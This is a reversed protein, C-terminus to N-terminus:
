AARAEKETLASAPFTMVITGQEDTRRIDSIGANKLNELTEAHPFGYTNDAGCSIIATKAGVQQLFDLTSSSRSGHHGLKIVECALPIGGSLLTQEAQAEADGMFLIRHTGATLMSVLSYNNLEEFTATPDPYLFQLTAGTSLTIVDGPSPLVTRVQNDEIASLLKGYTATTLTCNPMYITDVSFRQLVTPLGGIHDEHPHTAIVASLHSIGQQELYALLKKSSSAPGGDILIADEGSQILESDGQGVDIFHVTTDQSVTTAATSSAFLHNQVSSYLMNAGALIGAFVILLLKKKLQRLSAPKPASSFCTM